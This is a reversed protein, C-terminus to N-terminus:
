RKSELIINDILRAPGIYVAMAVLVKGRIKDVDKLSAADVIKIYDVKASPRSEILRRMKAAVAKPCRQGQKVLKKALALAEYLCASDKRAKSDLYANRSSMALKDKERVTPLVRIKVPFNLDRALKKIILAQQYDKQGFYASDPGVINFLKTIVTSVGKFHGPRSRGCLFRSLNVEDVYVSFGSEYMDRSRPCFLLDVGEAKLLRSDKKLNGPYRAYDEKPGFQIPNVFISAVVFGCEKRAREVLSLHGKHLAGMTPVLGITRGKKKIEKVKARVKKISTTVIM